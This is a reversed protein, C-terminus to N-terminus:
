LLTTPSSELSDRPYECRKTAQSRAGTANKERVEHGNFHIATFANQVITIPGGGLGFIFRGAFMGGYRLMPDEDVLAAGLAYVASGVICFTVFLYMSKEKGLRDVMVGACLSMVMNCWSYVLYFYNYYANVDTTFGSIVQDKIQQELNAPMDFCYYSGFTLLCNLVLM